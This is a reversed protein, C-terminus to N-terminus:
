RGRAGAQVPEPPRRISVLLPQPSAKPIAQQGVPGGVLIVAQGGFPVEEEVQQDVVAAPGPFGREGYLIQEVPGPFFRLEGCSGTQEVFRLRDFFNVKRGAM